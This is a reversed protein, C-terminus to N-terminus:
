NQVTMCQKRWLIFGIGLSILNLGGLVGIILLLLNIKKSLLMLRQRVMKEFATETEHWSGAYQHRAYLALEEKPADFFYAPLVIDRNGSQNNVTKFAEAFLWFTRHLVRNLV